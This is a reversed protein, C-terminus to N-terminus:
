DPSRTKHCGTETQCLDKKCAGCPDDRLKGFKSEFEGLPDKEIEADRKRRYHKDIAVFLFPLAQLVAMILKLFKM